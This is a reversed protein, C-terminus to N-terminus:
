KRWIEKSNHPTDCYICRMMDDKETIFESPVNQIHSEHSICNINKCGIGKIGYTRPPISLKSKREIKNNVIQNVTCGGTIASLKKLESDTLSKIKPLFIIGKYSGPEKKSEGVHISGKFMTFNMRDMVKMLYDWVPYPEKEGRSIHDIVVGNELPNIGEKYVKKKNNDPTVDAIFSDSYKPAKITEGEFDSGIKGAIASLLIIRMIKGNSSQVSYHNLPLTDLFEPITPHERHRPFPHYFFTNEPLKKLFEKKFVIKERLSDQIKIIEDGM